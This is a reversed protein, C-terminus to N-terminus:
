KVIKVFVANPPIRCRNCDVKVNLKVFQCWKGLGKNQGLIMFLGGSSWGVGFELLGIFIGSVCAPYYIM